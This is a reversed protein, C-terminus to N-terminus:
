ASFSNGRDSAVSRGGARVIAPRHREEIESEIRLGLLTAPNGAIMQRIEAPSYGLYLCLRIVSRFGEVPTPNGVQGLDSGLITQAISGATILQKLNDGDFFKYHSGDIFMCISHELYAGMGGLSRLDESRLM